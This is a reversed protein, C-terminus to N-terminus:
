NLLRRELTDAVDRLHEIAGVQGLRAALMESVAMCALAMTDKEDMKHRTAVTEIAIVLQRSTSIIEQDTM